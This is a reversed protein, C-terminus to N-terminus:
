CSELWSPGCRSLKEWEVKRQAVKDASGKRIQDKGENVGRESPSEVNERLLFYEKARSAGEKTRTENGGEAGGNPAGPILHCKKQTFFTEGSGEKFLM